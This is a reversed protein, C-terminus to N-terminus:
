NHKSGAAADVVVGMTKFGSQRAADILCRAQALTLSAIVVDGSM